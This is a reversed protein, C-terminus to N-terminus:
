QEDETQTETAFAIDLDREQGFNDTVVFKIEANKSSRNHYFLQRKYVDIDRMSYLRIDSETYPEELYDYSHTICDIKVGAISGKLTNKEMFDTRFIHILSLLRLLVLLLLSLTAPLLM